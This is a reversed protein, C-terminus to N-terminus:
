RTAECAPTALDPLMNNFFATGPSWWLYETFHGYHARTDVYAFRVRFDRNEDSAFILTFDDGSARVDEVMKDWAAIPGEIALGVHHLTVICRDFDIGDRYFEVAGSLPQIIEVQRDGVRALAVRMAFSRQRGSFDATLEHEALSFGTAGLKKEFFLTARELDKTVYGLQLVDRYHQILAM